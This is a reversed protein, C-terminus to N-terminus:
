QFETIDVRYPLMKEMQYFMWQDPDGDRAKMTGYPMGNRCWYDYLEIYIEGDMKEELDEVTEIGAQAFIKELEDM